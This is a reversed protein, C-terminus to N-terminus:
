LLGLVEALKFLLAIVFLAVLVWRWRWIVEGLDEGQRFAPRGRKKQRKDEKM